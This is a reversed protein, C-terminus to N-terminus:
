DKVLSYRNPVYIISESRGAFKESKILTSGPHQQIYQATGPKIIQVEATQPEDTLVSFAKLLLITVILYFSILSPM